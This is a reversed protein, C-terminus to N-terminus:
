IRALTADAKRRAASSVLRGFYRRHRAVFRYVVETAGPWRAAARAAFRASPLAALVACLAAGGSDRRHSDHLVHMSRLQVEPQLDALLEAGTPSQIAAPQLVGRADRALAWTVTWRCFGCDADYLVIM